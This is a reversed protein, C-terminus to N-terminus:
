IEEESTFMDKDEEGWQMAYLLPAKEIVLPISEKCFPCNFKLIDQKSAFTFGQVGCIKKSKCFANILFQLGCHPCQLYYYYQENPDLYIEHQTENM